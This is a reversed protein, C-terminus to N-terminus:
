DANRGNWLEEGWHFIREMLSNQNTGKGNPHVSCDMGARAETPPLHTHLPDLLPPFERDSTASM